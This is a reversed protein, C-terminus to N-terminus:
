EEEGLIERLDGINDDIKPEVFSNTNESSDNIILYSTDNSAFFFGRAINGKHPFTIMEPDKIELMENVEELLSGTLDSFHVIVSKM